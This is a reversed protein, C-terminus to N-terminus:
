NYISNNHSQLLFRATCTVNVGWHGVSCCWIFSRHCSHFSNCQWRSTTETWRVPMFSNIANTYWLEILSLKISLLHNHCSSHSWYCLMMHKSTITKLSEVVGLDSLLIHKTHKFLKWTSLQTKKHKKKKSNNKPKHRKEPATQKTTLVLATSQRRQFSRYHTSLSM